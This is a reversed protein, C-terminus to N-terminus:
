YCVFRNRVGRGDPTPVVRILRLGTPCRVTKHVPDCSAAGKLEGCQRLAKDPFHVEVGSGERGASGLSDASSAVPLAVAPPTSSSASPLDCFLNSGSATIRGRLAVCTRRILTAEDSVAAAVAAPRPTRALTSELIQLRVSLSATRSHFYLVVLVLVALTILSLFDLQKRKSSRGM